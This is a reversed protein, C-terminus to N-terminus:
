SLDDGAEACIDVAGLPIKEQLFSEVRGQKKAENWDM